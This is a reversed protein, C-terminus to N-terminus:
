PAPENKPEAEKKPEPAVPIIPPNYTKLKEVFASPQHALMGKLILLRGRLDTEPTSEPTAQDILQAIGNDTLANGNQRIHRILADAAKLRIEVPRNRADRLATKLLAEQAAASRFRAVAEIAASVIAVDPHGLAERLEPEASTLDYGPIDGIAMRRLYDAALKAEALRVAPDRPAMAPDNKLLALEQQITIRSYPEPIIRVLPYERFTRALKAELEPDRYTEVKLGLEVPDVRSLLRDYRDYAFPAKAVDIEFREILKMLDTTAIGTGYDSSPPQLTLQKRIRNLEAVTGPASDESFPFEVGLIAYTILQIRLNMLRRQNETLTLPLTDIVRQLRTIRNAAANRYRNDRAEQIKQKEEAQQAPTFRPDPLYPPPMAIVDNETAAILAAMRVLLQDFSPPRPKDSSAVIYIPRKATQPNADLQAVLDILEPDATHRDIVILDFDSARAVRRLLQRGTPFTEVKFGIGRLLVSNNSTRFPNPDVLLLTGQSEPPTGPDTALTRRLIDVMLRKAEPPPQVPARLLATAAAFQVASHDYRLARVVLADRSLPGAPPAAAARDARDGLVQLMALVLSTRKENLGRALLELLPRSPADALLAYVAPEATALLGYNAREIGREAALALILMQAPEFEPKAELAWRAYKLGFYEDAQRIPVDTLQRLEFVGNRETTIWLSTTAPTADPNTKVDLYRAQHEYFTKAISTLEVEPRKSDAKVGPYFRNLLNLALARLNQPVEKPDRALIRWLHPTFDTQANTLLDLVDRRAALAELIGLQRDTGFRDLAAVWGGMTPGDLVPITELLGAYLDPDPNMRMADVMFPIAFDGTRKLEQQAFVKEEYSAALNAIFKLVREKSRLVKDTVEKARRNLEEILERIRKERAPDDSYRPITRLQQFATTGYQKEIALFDDDTPNSKLFEELYVAAIDLKRESLILRFENYIQLPKKPEKQPQAATNGACAGSLALAFALFLATRM